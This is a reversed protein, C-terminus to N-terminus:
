HCVGSGGDTAGGAVPVFEWQYRDSSLTLKLVGFSSIRIESNPHLTAPQRLFAGGTGVVFQRIGRATDTRGDPDQPGFREYMHEHGSLVIDARADYLIRWFERMAQMDGNPGSTFLPHHWYAITCRARSAALDSRLWTAQPSGPGVAVNSNLAVAHWDGIEFSYYGDGLPGSALEGFYEFYPFAGPSEYEHNGPVPFTRGKHRGWTTEYCNRYDERTGRFYANDGLTFVMGGINDLLAATAVSNIDCMAIDGAGVFIQPGSSPPVIPPPLGTPPGPTPGTPSQSGCYGCAVCIVLILIRRM